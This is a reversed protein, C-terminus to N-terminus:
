YEVELGCTLGQAWFSGGPLRGPPGSSPVGPDFSSLQFVQRSDVGGVLSGARTLRSIGLLEYGARIRLWPTLRCSATVAIEPIAAFHDESVPGSGPQAFVGGAYAATTADELLLATGGQTKATQHVLGLGVKGVVGLSCPGYTLGASLGLQPAYYTNSIRFHDLSTMANGVPAPNSPVVTGDLV